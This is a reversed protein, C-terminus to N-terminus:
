YPLTLIFPDWICTAGAKVLPRQMLLLLADIYPTKQGLVPWDDELMNYTPFSM